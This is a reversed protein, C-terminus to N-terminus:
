KRGSVQEVLLKEQLITKMRALDQRKNKYDRANKNKNLIKRMRIDVLDRQLKEIERQLEEKSKIRLKALDERKM